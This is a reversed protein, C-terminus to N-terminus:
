WVGGHLEVVDNEAAEKGDGGHGGRGALSGAGSLASSGRADHVLRILQDSAALKLPALVGVLALRVDVNVTLRKVKANM